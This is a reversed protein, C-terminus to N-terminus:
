KAKEPVKIPQVIAEDLDSKLKQINEIKRIYKEM